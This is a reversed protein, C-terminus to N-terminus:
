DMQKDLAADKTAAYIAAAGELWKYFDGDNWKPGRHKGEVKGIAVEFNGVYRQRDVRTMMQGMTPVMSDRCNAFRDAWFGRTWQSAGADVPHAKLYPSAMAPADYTLAAQVHLIM